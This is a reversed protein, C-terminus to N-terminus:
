KYDGKLKIGRSKLDVILKLFQMNQLTIEDRILSLKEDISMEQPESNCPVLKHKIENFANARALGTRSNDQIVGTERDTLYASIEACMAYYDKSSMKYFTEAFVLNTSILLYCVVLLKKM